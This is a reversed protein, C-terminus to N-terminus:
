QLLTEVRHIHCCQILLMLVAYYTSGESSVDMKKVPFLIQKNYDSDKSFALMATLMACSYVAKETSVTTGDSFCKGM